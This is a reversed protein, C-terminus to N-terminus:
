SGEHISAGRARGRRAGRDRPLPGESRDPHDLLRALGIEARDDGYWRRRLVEVMSFREEPTMAATEARAAAAVEEFSEFRQIIPRERVSELTAASEQNKLRISTIPESSVFHM